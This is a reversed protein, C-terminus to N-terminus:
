ICHHGVFGGVDVLRVILEWRLETFVFIIYLSPWCIWWCWCSSCDARMEVRQVCLNYVTIALLDVLMLLVFL